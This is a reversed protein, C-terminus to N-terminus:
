KQEEAFFIFPRACDVCVRRFDWYYAVGGARPAQRDPNAEIATSPIPKGHGPNLLHAFSTHARTPNLGTLRPGRGFRPHEVYSAYEDVPSAPHDANNESM